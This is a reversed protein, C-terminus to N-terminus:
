PSLDLVLALFTFYYVFLILQCFIFIGFILVDSRTETRKAM